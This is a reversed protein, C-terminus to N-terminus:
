TAFFPWGKERAFRVAALAGDQSRYPAGPALFVGDYAELRTIAGDGDLTDTPIWEARVPLNLAAGAHQLAGGTARHYDKTRDHDGVIAIMMEPM